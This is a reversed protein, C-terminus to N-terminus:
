QTTLRIVGVDRHAAAANLRILDPTNDGAIRDKIKLTEDPILVALYYDGEGLDRFAFRGDAALVASAALVTMGTNTFAPKLDRPSKEKKVSSVPKTPDDTLRFLGVRIGAATAGPMAIQGALRGNSLNGASLKIHEYRDPKADRALALFVDARKMDGFRAWAAALRAAARSGIFYLKDDSLQELMARTEANIPASRMLWALKMQTQLLSGHKMSGQQTFRDILEFYEHPQWLTRYVEAAGMMASKSLVSHKGDEAVFRELTAVTEPHLPVDGGGYFSGFTSVQTVPSGVTLAPNVSIDKTVRCNKDGCFKVLRFSLPQIGSLEAVDALKPKGLFDISRLVPLAVVGAVLVAAALILAPRTATIRARWGGKGPIFAPLLGFAIASGLALLAIAGIALWTWGFVSPEMSRDLAETVVTLWIMFVASVANVILGFALIFMAGLGATRAVAPWSLRSPHNNGFRGFAQPSVLLWVLAAAALVVIWKESSSQGGVGLMGFDLTSFVLFCAALFLLGGGIWAAWAWTRKGHEARPLRALAPHLEGAVMYWLWAVLILASWPLWNLEEGFLIALPATATVDHYMALPMLFDDYAPIAIAVLILFVWLGFIAGILGYISLSRM